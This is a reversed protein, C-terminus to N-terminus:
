PFSTEEVQTSFSIKDDKIKFVVENHIRETTRTM